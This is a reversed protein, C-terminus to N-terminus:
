KAFRKTAFAVRFSHCVHITLLKYILTLDGTNADDMPSLLGKEECRIVWIEPDKFVM